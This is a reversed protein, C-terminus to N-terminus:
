PSKVLLKQGCRRRHKIEQEKALRCGGTRGDYLVSGHTEAQLPVALVEAVLTRRRCSDSRLSFAKCGEGLGM